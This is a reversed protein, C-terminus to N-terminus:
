VASFRLVRINIVYFFAQLTHQAALYKYLYSFFLAARGSTTLFMNELM